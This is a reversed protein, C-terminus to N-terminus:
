RGIRIGIGGGGSGVGIGVGRGPGHEFDDDKLWPNGTHISVIGTENDVRLGKLSLSSYWYGIQRGGPDKMYSGYANSYNLPFAEVLGVVKELTDTQPDFERWRYDSIRYGKQLAVVAFPNNEQNLYYYQHDPYVHFTEFAQTVDRSHKFSGYNAGTCGSCFLVMLLCVLAFFTRTDLWRNGPRSLVQIRSKGCTNNAHYNNKQMKHRFLKM